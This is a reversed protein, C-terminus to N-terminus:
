GMDFIKIYDEYIFCRHRSQKNAQKLIGFDAMAEVAKAATNFSLNLENAVRRIGVVPNKKIYEYLLM